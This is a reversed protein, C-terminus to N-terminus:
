ADGGRLAALMHVFATRELYQQQEPSATTASRLLSSVARIGSPSNALMADALDRCADDLEDVQVHLAALGIRAAEPGMVERGTTCIELARSYGLLEVLMHTGGLVPLVGLGPQHMRLRSDTAVIRLDCALALQMGVGTAEGQVAAISLAHTRSWIAFAKQYELIEDAVATEQTATLAALDRLGPEDGSGATWDPDIGRSFDPGSARLIVVRVEPALDRGIQALTRWLSPLQANGSPAHDLTLTLIPGEQGV